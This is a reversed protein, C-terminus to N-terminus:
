FVEIRHESVSFFGKTLAIWQGGKNEYYTVDLRFRGSPFLFDLGYTELSINDARFYIHDVLPCKKVNTTTSSSNWFRGVTFDMLYSKATGGLWGCINEWGDITFKRYVNATFKRYLVAHVHLSKIPRTFNAYFTTRVRTHSLKKM